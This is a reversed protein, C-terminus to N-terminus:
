IEVSGRRESVEPLSSLDEYGSDSSNDNFKNSEAVRQVLGKSFEALKESLDLVAGDMAKEAEAPALAAPIPNAYQLDGQLLARNLYLQHKKLATITAPSVLKPLQVGKPQPWQQQQQTMKQEKERQHEQCVTLASLDIMLASLERNEMVYGCCTKLRRWDEGVVSSPQLLRVVGRNKRPVFDKRRRSAMRQRRAKLQSLENERRRTEQEEELAKMEQQVFGNALLRRMNDNETETASGGMSSPKKKKTKRFIKRFKQPVFSNCSATTTSATNAAVEAAAAAAAADQAAHKAAVEQKLRKINETPSARGGNEECRKKFKTMSKLGPGVRADVVHGWHRESGPPLRKFRKVLLVCANCIEGQRPVELQFCEIFDIEYRKSDTFRSSSSKAKCICCGQTSRYVKPKHFSFM